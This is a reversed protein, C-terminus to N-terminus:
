VITKSKNLFYGARFFRVKADEGRHNSALRGSYRSSIPPSDPQPFQRPDKSGDDPASAQMGKRQGCHDFPIFRSPCGIVSIFDTPTAAAIAKIIDAPREPRALTRFIQTEKTKLIFDADGVRLQGIRHLRQFIALGVLDRRSRKRNDGIGARLHVFVGSIRKVLVKQSVRSFLALSAGHHAPTETSISLSIVM